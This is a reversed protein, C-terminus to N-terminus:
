KNEQNIKYREWVNKMEEETNDFKNGLKIFNGELMDSYVPSYEYRNILHISESVEIYINNDIRKFIDGQNLKYNLLLKLIEWGPYEEIPYIVKRFFGHQLEETNIIDKTTDNQFYLFNNKTNYKVTMTLSSGNTFQEGVKLSGESLMKQLEWGEYNQDLIKIM